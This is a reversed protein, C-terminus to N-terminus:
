RSYTNEISDYNILLKKFILRIGLSIEDCCYSEDDRCLPNIILVAWKKVSFPVEKLYQFLCRLFRRAVIDDLVVRVDFRIDM